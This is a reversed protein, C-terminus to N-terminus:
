DLNIDWTQEGPHLVFTLPKATKLSGYKKQVEDLLKGQKADLPLGRPTPPVPRPHESTDPGGEAPMEIRDPRADRKVLVRVPGAPVYAEYAGSGDPKIAGIGVYNTGNYFHLFGWPLPKGKYTIKGRVTELPITPPQAPNCGLMLCGLALVRAMGRAERVWWEKM